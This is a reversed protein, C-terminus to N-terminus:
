EKVEFFHEAYLVDGNTIGQVVIRFKGTIDSTYFNIDTGKEKKLLVGYNWYITSFFAPEKPDKYDDLYFEKQVHIGKFKIFTDGEITRTLKCGHYPGISGSYSVGEVPQTNGADNAHNRCNLINYLCVYDGCANSGGGGKGYKFSNDVKAKIVVENLRIAKESGKLVLDSNNLLVSPLVVEEVLQTKALQENMLKFSDKIKIEYAFKNKENVFLYASKGQELIMEPSNFDFAGKNSTTILRLKEDGFVGVTTTTTLEKKNKTVTGKIQLSDLKLHNEKITSNQLDQLNYRRWGKVSLMQELYNLDKYANGKGNTPLTSLENTLYNYSEIDTMKTISFRNNQVVAISVLANEDTNLNLKMNVKERKKYIQQDTSFTIKEANNYHAFFIQEALPRDLSDLITLTTLGKPIDKLPMKVVINNRKKEFSTTLFCTKFNHIILTLKLNKLSKLTFQLTDNTLTNHISLVLGKELIQPLVYNSDILNSHVLKVKYEHGIEPTLLFKGIGYSSTEITDIVKEDRYLFAILAIPQNQQDKVEWRITSVLGNVMDGGEPYFKVKAKNKSQPLGMSIFTSDNEYKLKIYINPDALNNQHPVNLLSQGSGDTITNKKTLGYNYSIQAPKKLFRDDKTTASILVKHANNQDTVQEMLKISAKFPPAINSKIIIDQIFLSEPMKNVLKDTYVLFHYNGTPISDPLTLSGFSLGNNMIFKDEAILASDVDRILALSMIKHADMPIKGEKIIYGTFYVMENNSYINKDFHVFLNSSPKELEYLTKKEKVINQAFTTLQSLGCLFCFLFLRM